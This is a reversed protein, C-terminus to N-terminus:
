KGGLLDFTGFVEVGARWKEDRSEARLDDWHGTVTPDITPRNDADGGQRYRDQQLKEGMQLRLDPAAQEGGLKLHGSIRVGLVHGNATRTTHTVQAYLFPPFVNGFDGKTAAAISPTGTVAAMGSTESGAGARSREGVTGTVGAGPVDMDQRFTGQPVLLGGVTGGQWSVGDPSVDGRVAGGMVPVNHEETGIGLHGSASFHGSRPLTGLQKAGAAVDGRLLAAKMATLQEIGGYELTLTLEGAFPGVGGEVRMRNLASSTFRVHVDTPDILRRPYQGSPISLTAEGTLTNSKPNFVVTPNVLTFGGLDVGDLVGGVFMTPDIRLEVSPATLFGGRGAGPPKRVDLRSPLPIPSGLVGSRLEGPVVEIGTAPDQIPKEPVASQPERRIPAPGVGPPAGGTLLRRVAANGVARQLGLLADAPGIPVAASRAPSRRRPPSAPRTPDRRSLPRLVTAPM